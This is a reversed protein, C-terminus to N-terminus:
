ETVPKIGSRKICIHYVTVAAAAILLVLILMTLARPEYLSCLYDELELQFGGDHVFMSRIFRGASGTATWMLMVVPVTCTLALTGCLVGFLGRRRFLAYMACVIMMLSLLIGFYTLTERVALPPALETVYPWDATKEDWNPEFIVTYLTSSRYFMTERVFGFLLLMNFVSSVAAIVFASCFTSRTINKRSVCNATGFRFANDCVLIFLLVTVVIAAIEPKIPEHFRFFYEKWDPMREEIRELDAFYEPHISLNIYQAISRFAFLLASVLLAAASYMVTVLVGRKSRLLYNIMGKM